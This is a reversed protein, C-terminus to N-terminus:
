HRGGHSGGSSGSRSGGGGGGRSGSPSGSRGGGGGGGHSGGSPASCGRGGGGSPASYGRGGGSPASYSRGGGSPASYGRGGGSPASYSRGGGSPASYGRGGGSPASYSRGGGSPASYVRGGGYGGGSGSRDRVIPRNLQLPARSGGYASGGGRPAPSNWGGSPRSEFRNWGGQGQPAAVGAGRNARAPQSSFRQWGGQNGQPTAQRPQVSQPAVTRPSATGMPATRGTGPAAQSGFRQWGARTGPQGTVPRAAQAGIATNQRTGVMGPRTAPAMSGARAPVNAGARQGNAMPNMRGAPLSTRSAPGASRTFFHQNNAAATPLAARNVPRNVPQLSARTPTVPLRGQMLSGQRLMNENVPQLNHAIRGNAFNQSSVTTIAGRLRANTMIGQLNSGYTRGGPGNFRTSRVNNINTINMSNFGRGRGWWRNLRDRPGLPCWGISDFGFGLGFGGHRGGFGFFSVFGPGWIPRPGYFGVGPWWWWSSGYSFWRGYHYPAWGWPEYGVWTWGYYPDSMWRGDRYPVWGANVYPTWCWDYGPVQVWHGYRDLDESGTYYRNTHQWAQASAIIHDRDDNWRDWDDKGDAQALRYEPNDTGKVYIVQGKDVNTSGQPTTVEAQGKRVTLQTDEASNVQIRYVGEGLPHIAMNPTDIEVDAETGKLVTFDVLGSAVQIQIRTRALDAVKVETGSALRLINAYDLQVEAQSRDGTTIKDGQVVPANVTSAVWDGSDGRMTSVDGQIVSIRAVGPASEDEAISAEGPAPEDQAISAEGPTPEDQAKVRQPGLLVLTLIGLMILLIRNKM